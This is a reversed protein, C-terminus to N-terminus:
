EGFVPYRQASSFGDPILSSSIKYYRANGLMTLSTVLTRLVQLMLGGSGAM